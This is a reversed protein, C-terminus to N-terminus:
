VADKNESASMAREAAVGRDGHLSWIAHGGHADSRLQEPLHLRKEVHYSAFALAIGQSRELGSFGVEDGTARYLM